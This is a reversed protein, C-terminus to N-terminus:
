LFRKLNIIDIIINLAAKIRRPLFLYTELNFLQKLIYKFNFYYEKEAKKLMNKLLVPTIEGYSFSATGEYQGYEDWNTILIKGNKKIDEYMKTGPYPIPLLFQAYDTRTKKAFDITKQMTDKTEGPNGLMYFGMTKIGAKKCNDVM